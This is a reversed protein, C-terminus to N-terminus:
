NYIILKQPLQQIFIEFWKTGVFPPVEGDSNRGKCLSPQGNRYKGQRLFFMVQFKNNIQKTENRHHHTIVLYYPLICWKSAIITIGATGESPMISLDFPSHFLHNSLCICFPDCLLSHSLPYIIVISIPM